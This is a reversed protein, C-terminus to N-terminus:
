SARRIEERVRKRMHRFLASGVGRPSIGLIAAVERKSYKKCLDHIVDEDHVASDKMPLGATKAWACITKRDAGTAAEIQAMRIQPDAYMELARDVTSKPYITRGKPPGSPRSPMRAARAWKRVTSPSAGARKGLEDATINPDSWIKLARDRERKTFPSTPMRPPVNAERAWRRVTNRSVGFQAAIEDEPAGAKYLKVAARRDAETARDRGDVTSLGTQEAVKTVTSPHVGVIRAVRSKCIRDRLLAVIKRRKKEPIAKV